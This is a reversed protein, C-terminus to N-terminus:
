AKLKAALKLMANASKLTGKRANADLKSLLIAIKRATKDDAPAPASSGRSKAM